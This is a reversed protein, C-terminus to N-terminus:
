GVGEIKAALIFDNESLGGVAHTSLEVDVKKYSYIRLDPHHDEAEAIEAVKNVFEVAELFDQFAFTKTLQTNDVIRWGGVLEQIYKEIDGSTLPPAGEKIPACAKESLKM